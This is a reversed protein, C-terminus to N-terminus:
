QAFNNMDSQIIANSIIGLGFIALILYIISNDKVMKNHNRQAIMLKSGVTYYWFFTYIGCTILSFLIVKGGRFSRDDILYSIEETIAYMWYINYLGCTILSLIIVVGVNRNKVM